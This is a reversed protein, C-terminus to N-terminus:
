FPTRRRKKLKKKMCNLAIQNVEEIEKITLARRNPCKAQFHGYGQCKSCRKHDLQKPFEKVV